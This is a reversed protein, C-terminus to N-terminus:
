AVSEAVKNFEEPSVNKTVVKIQPKVAEIVKKERLKERIRGAEEKNGLISKAYGTLTEDPVASMGYQAFQMSALEKAEQLEEEPTVEIKLSDIYHKQILNWTMMRLFGAFDKEIEEMSFKGENITYLWRKLFNEPLSLGAKDLLYNRLTATFLLESERDLESAIQADIYKDFGAADTVDGAPFATKFFEENLEPEAFRRIKTITLTFEPNIGELENEKVKLVAARQSPTKYLDNVNVAITDGVKKGIFPKREEESMSILGVYADEVKVEGNDLTASLAEDSTAEEVDVLRGFRRLFNSRFGEKMEKTPKIKYYTVKDSESLPIDVKPALGLEFVFEHETNADFDLAKQEDSPILDGMFDIKEKEVYDFAGKTATRYAEEAVVGKRYLRNIITMPVMGPRFGPVNAKRRYDKLTKEVAAGYDAEGVTVKLVVTLDKREEKVINM